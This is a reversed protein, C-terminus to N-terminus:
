GAKAVSEIRERLGKELKEAKRQTEIPYQPSLEGYISDHFYIKVRLERLNGDLKRQLSMVAKLWHDDLSPFPNWTSFNDFHILVKVKRLGILRVQILDIWRRFNCPGCHRLKHPASYSPGRCTGMVTSNCYLQVSKIQALRHPHTTQLFYPYKNPFSFRFTRLDVLEANALKGLCMYRNRVM